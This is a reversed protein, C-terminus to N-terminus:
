NIPKDKTLDRFFSYDADSVDDTRSEPAGGEEDPMTVTGNAYTPLGERIREMGEQAEQYSHVGEDVCVQHMLAQDLDLIHSFQLLVEITEKRLCDDEHGVTVNVEKLDHGDGRVARFVRTDLAITVYGRDINQVTAHESFNDVARALDNYTADAASVEFMLDGVFDIADAILNSDSM